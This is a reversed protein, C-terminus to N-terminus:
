RHPLEGIVIEPKDPSCCAYREICYCNEKHDERNTHQEIRGKTQSPATLGAVQDVRDSKQREHKYDIKDAPINESHDIAESIPSRVLVSQM